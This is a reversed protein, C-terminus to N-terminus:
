QPRGCLASIESGSLEGLALLCAAVRQITDWNSQVACCAVTAVVEATIEADAARCRDVQLRATLLDASHALQSQRRSDAGALLEAFPAALSVVAYRFAGDACSEVEDYETLGLHIRARIVPLGMRTAITAHASEHLAVRALDAETTLLSVEPLRDKSGRREHMEVLRQQATEVHVAALWQSVLDAHRDLEM